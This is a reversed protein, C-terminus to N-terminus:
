GGRPPPGPSALARLAGAAEARLGQRLRSRDVVRRRALRAPLRRLAPARSRGSRGDGLGRISGRGAGIELCRWGPQALARRRRSTPDYLEELLSLREDEAAERGAAALRYDHQKAMALLTAGPVREPCVCSRIASPRSGTAAGPRASRLEPRSAHGSTSCCAPM